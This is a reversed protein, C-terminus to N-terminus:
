GLHIAIFFIVRIASFQDRQADEPEPQLVEPTNPLTLLAQAM